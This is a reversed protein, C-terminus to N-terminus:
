AAGGTIEITLATEIVILVGLSKLVMRAREVRRPPHLRNRFEDETRKGDPRLALTTDVEM